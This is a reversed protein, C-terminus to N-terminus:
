GGWPNKTFSDSGNSGYCTVKVWGDSFGYFKGSTNTGNGPQISGNTGDDRNYPWAGDRSDFTCYISAGGQFNSLHYQIWQCDGSSCGPRYGTAGTPQVWDVKPQPPPPAANTTGAVYDTWPGWGSDQAQARLRIRKTTSYGLGSITTSHTGSGVVANKDGDIEYATIPRGNSATTGWSWTISNNDKSSV